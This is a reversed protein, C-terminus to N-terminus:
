SAATRYLFNLGFFFVRVNKIEADTSLPKANKKVVITNSVSDRVTRKEKNLTMWAIDAIVNLPGVSWFILRFIMVFISPKKGNIHLIKTKTLMQGLTGFESAKLVTLYFFTFMMFVYKSVVYDDTYYSQYLFDDLFVSAILLLFLFAIDILIIIVRTFFSAYDSDKFIIGTDTYKM